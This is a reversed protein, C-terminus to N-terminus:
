CLARHDISMDGHRRMSGLFKSQISDETWMSNGYCKIEGM